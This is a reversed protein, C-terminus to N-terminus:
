SLMPPFHQYNNGRLVETDIGAKQLEADPPVQAFTTETKM